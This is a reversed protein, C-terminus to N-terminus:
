DKDCTRGGAFCRLRKCAGARGRLDERSACSKVALAVGAVLGAGGIPVVIAEVDPVQDLIELGMTGQGAIIAPDNFGHIYTLGSEIALAQAHDFAEHFSEGHLVVQAGLKRCTTRKILPAFQPMVVTVPIALLKGHYALGLAHNGASASIVGRRRQDDSLMLMANRAGREKFSGTRQLYDLKCYARCGAIESLPISEPCPSLYIGSAIRSKAAIVDDLSLSM